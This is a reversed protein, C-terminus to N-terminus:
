LPSFGRGVVERTDIISIIAAPDHRKVINKLPSVEVTRLICYVITREEGSYGGRAPLFTVGRHLENLVHPAIKDWHSSIIFITQTRNFGALVTDFAKQSALLALLTLVAPQLGHILAMVLLICANIANGIVAMSISLRKSLLFTICDLGGMSAGRRVVLALSSGILAGGLLASLMPNELMAPQPGILAMAVTYSSIGLVSLLTFKLDLKFFSLITTPINLMVLLAWIPLGTANNLLMAIGTLGTTLFGSPVYFVSVCYAHLVGVAIIVAITYVISTKRLM